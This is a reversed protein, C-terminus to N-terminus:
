PKAPTEADIFREAPADIMAASFPNAASRYILSVRFSQGRNTMSRRLSRSRRGHGAESTGGACLDIAFAPELVAAECRTARRSPSMKLKEEECSRSSAALLRALIAVAELLEAWGNPRANMAKSPRGRVEIAVEPGTDFLVAKM